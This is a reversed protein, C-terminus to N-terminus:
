PTARSPLRGLLWAAVIGTSFNQFFIEVGSVFLLPIPLVNVQYLLPVIGGIAFLIVGTWVVRERRPKTVSLLFPVVSLVILMGRITEAVLITNTSPIALGGAHSEYYPRTVLMYNIAGFIFYFVLYSAASVVLRWLWDYWARPPLITEANSKPAFLLTIASATLMALIFQQAVLVPLNSGIQAPAFFAGEIVVSVINFFIVCTWIVQHRARSVALQGAIPGLVLGMVIGGVFLWPLMEAVQSAIAFRVGLTAFFVGTLMLGIIYGVGVLISRALWLSIQKIM